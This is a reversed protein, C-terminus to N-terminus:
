PKLFMPRPIKDVLKVLAYDNTEIGTRSLQKIRQLYRWSDFKIGEELNLVGYVGPYFKLQKYQRGYRGDFINHAATIVLNSSVLAGSGRM